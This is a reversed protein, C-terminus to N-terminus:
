PYVKHGTMEVLRQEMGAQVTVMVQVVGASCYLKYEVAGPLAQIVTMYIDQEGHVPTWRGLTLQKVFTFSLLRQLLVRVNARGRGAPAM